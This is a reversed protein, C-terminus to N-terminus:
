CSKKWIYYDLQEILGNREFLPIFIGPSVLGIKPHKWRVLAEASNLFPVDKSVNFKPQYFIIFEDNELAKKFSDILNEEFLEKEYIKRDYIMIHKTLSDRIMNCAHNARDFRQSIELKKDVCQYVGMRYRLNEDLSNIDELIDDYNDKHKVYMFFSDAENRCVIGSSNAVIRKLNTAVKKLLKDCHKKGFRENLIHFHHINLVIADMDEDFKQDMYLAYQYFYQMNYLGTLVDRETYNILKRDYYLEITRKIRARIIEQPPYPKSIFDVAGLELSLEEAHSDSTLVIVPIEDINVKSRLQKLVSIGDLEPMMIDLLVLSINDGEKKIIDLAERGNEASITEYTDSLIHELLARNIEEDDVILIKRRENYLEFNKTKM